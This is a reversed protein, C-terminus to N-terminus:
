ITEIPTNQAFRAKGALAVNGGCESNARLVVQASWRDKREPRGADKLVKTRTDKPERNERIAAVDKGM